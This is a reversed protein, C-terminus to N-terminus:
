YGKLIERVKMTGLRNFDKLSRGAQQWDRRLAELQGKNTGKCDGQISEKYKVMARRYRTQAGVNDAYNNRSNKCSNSAKNIIGTKIHKLKM